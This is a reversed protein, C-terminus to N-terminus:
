PVDCDTSYGASHKSKIANSHCGCSGDLMNLGAYCPHTEGHFDRALDRQNSIMKAHDIWALRADNRGVSSRLCPSITTNIWERSKRDMMPFFPERLRVLVNTKQASLRSAPNTSETAPGQFSPRTATPGSGSGQRCHRATARRTTPTSYSISTTLTTGRLLFTLRRVVVAACARTCIVVTSSSQNTTSQHCQVLM